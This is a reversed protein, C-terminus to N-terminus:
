PQGSRNKKVQARVQGHLVSMLQEISGAARWQKYHWYVTSYPPFDKPLDAWNCGNKLQYLIGDLIERKTWEAPRTQKKPPLIQSLLPKVIEWERDTLSSSYPM